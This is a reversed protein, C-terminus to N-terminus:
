IRLGPFHMLTLSKNTLRYNIHLEHTQYLNSQGYSYGVRWQKFGTGLQVSLDKGTGSWFGLSFFNNKSFNTSNYYYELISGILLHNAKQSNLYQAHPVIAIKENNSYLRLGSHVNLVNASRYNETFFSENPNNIRSLSSGVFFDNKPGFKYAACFGANFHISRIDQYNGNTIELASYVKDPDNPLRFQGNLEQNTYATQIGLGLQINNLLKSYSGSFAIQSIHIGNNASKDKFLQLGIGILDSKFNLNREVTFYSSQFGEGNIGHNQIRQGISIKLNEPMLATLSPNILLPNAYFQTFLPSQATIQICFVSLLYFTIVRKM